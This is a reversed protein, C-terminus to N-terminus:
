SVHAFKSVGEHNIRISLLLNAGRCKIHRCEAYRRKASQTIKRCHASDKNFTLSLTM